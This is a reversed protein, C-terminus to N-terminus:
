ADKNLGKLSECLPGFDAILTPMEELHFIGHDDNYTGLHYLEMEDFHQKEIADKPNLICFREVAKRMDEPEEFKYEPLTFSGTKRNRYCYVNIM